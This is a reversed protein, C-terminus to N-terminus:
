SRNPGARCCVRPLCNRVNQTGLDQCKTLPAKSFVAQIGFGEARVSWDPLKELPLDPRYRKTSCSFLLLTVSHISQMLQSSNHGSFKVGERHAASGQVTKAVSVHLCVSSSLCFPKPYWKNVEKVLKVLLICALGQLLKKCGTKQCLLIGLLSWYVSQGAEVRGM